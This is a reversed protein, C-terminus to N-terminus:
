EAEFRTNPVAEESTVRRYSLVFEHFGTFIWFGVTRLWVRKTATKRRQWIIFNYDHSFQLSLKRGPEFRDLPIWTEVQVFSWSTEGLLEDSNRDLSQPGVLFENGTVADTPLRLARYIMRKVPFISEWFQEREEGQLWLSYLIRRHLLTSWGGVMWRKEYSALKRESEEEKARQEM